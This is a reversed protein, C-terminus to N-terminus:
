SQLHPYVVENPAVVRINRPHHFDWHSPCSCVQQQPCFDWKINVLAKLDIGRGAPKGREGCVNFESSGSNRQTQYSPRHAAHLASLSLWCDVTRIYMFHMNWRVSSLFCSCCLMRNRGWIRYFAPHCHLWSM